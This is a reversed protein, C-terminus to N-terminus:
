KGQQYSEVLSEGSAMALIDSFSLQGFRDLVWQLQVMAQMQVTPRRRRKGFAM